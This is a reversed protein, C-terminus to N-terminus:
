GSGLVGGETLLQELRLLARGYRKRAATPDIDLLVGIEEYPLEEAHRLLLIERDAESLLGVVRAVRDATDRAEASESPTPGAAFLSRVLAQSSPDAAAHERAVDRRAARHTRRANLVREYATRRAWLHFPMPRRALFDPLRRAIEAQTEQVLDSPDVRHRIGGDLHHEVFQRLAPRERALLDGVAAPDGTSALDLLARTADSDPRAQDVSTGM